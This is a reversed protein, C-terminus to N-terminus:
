VFELCHRNYTTDSDQSYAEGRRLSLSLSFKSLLSKKWEGDLDNKEQGEEERRWELSLSRILSFSVEMTESVSHWHGFHRGSHGVGILCSKTLQFIPFAVVGPRDARGSLAPLRDAEQRRGTGAQVM